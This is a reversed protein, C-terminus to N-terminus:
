VDTPARETRPLAPVANAHSELREIGAATQFRLRTWSWHRDGIWRAAFRWVGIAVIVLVGAAAADIWWHNATALISLVMLAPHIVIVWRWRSKLVMIVAIAEIMAWGFHLSPMAAIQNAAGDLANPSYISPGFTQMTDVFGAMMRPPALPFVLHMVLGTFTVFAMLNRFGRYREPHRLYLWLLLAIAAPFHFWIYYHNLLKIITPHDLLFRQLNDEFPLGLWEEFRVIKRAHSFAARFDSKNVTRIARYTMLLGGVIGIEILLQRGYRSRWWSAVSGHGGRADHQVTTGM